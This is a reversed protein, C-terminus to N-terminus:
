AEYGPIATALVYDRTCNTQTCPTRSWNDLNHSYRAKNSEVPNATWPPVCRLTCCPGSRTKTDSSVKSQLKTKVRGSKEIYTEYSLYIKRQNRDRIVNVGLFYQVVGQDHMM